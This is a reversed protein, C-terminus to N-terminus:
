SLLSLFHSSTRILELSFYPQLAPLSIPQIVWCLYSPSSNRKMEELLGSSNFLLVTFWFFAYHPDSSVAECMFSFCHSFSVFVSVFMLGTGVPSIVCIHHMVGVSLKFPLKGGPRLNFLSLCHLAKYWVGLGVFVLQLSLVQLCYAASISAFYPSLVQCLMFHIIIDNLM